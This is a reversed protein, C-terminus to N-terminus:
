GLFRAVAEKIARIHAPGTGCCGGIINAGAEILAPVCAAMAEPTEPYRLGEEVAEPQGANPQIMVPADGAAARIRRALDIMDAPGLTCNAGVVDAGAEIVGAVMAEPTVGMMTHYAGDQGRSFTMTCVIELQTNEKAARIAVCAEQLDMMTEVLCADAGGRELAVAQERFAEYMQDESVVGMMLLEGTPGISANVHRSSGMAERSIAAGIENIAAAQDALGHKALAIRNGGFTNTTILDCGCDAYSRAVALVDDRRDLNWREPCDGTKLGKAILFSGWGGDSLLVRKERVEERISQVVTDERHPPLALARM